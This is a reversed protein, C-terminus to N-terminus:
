RKVKLTPCKWRMQGLPALRTTEGATAVIAPPVNNSATQVRSKSPQHLVALVVLAGLAAALGGWRFVPRVSWRSRFPLRIPQAAEVETPLALAAIERCEGCESLHSLVQRRERETLTREIFATLLNADPHQFLRVDIAAPRKGHNGVSRRKLRELVIKPIGWM